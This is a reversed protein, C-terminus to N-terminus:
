NVPCGVIGTNPDPPLCHREKGNNRERGNSFNVPSPAHIQNLRRAESVLWSFKLTRDPALTANRTMLEEFLDKQCGPPIDWSSVFGYTQGDPFGDLHRNMQGKTLGDPNQCAEGALYYLENYPEYVPVPAIAPPSPTLDVPQVPPFQESGVSSSDSGDTSSDTGSGGSNTEAPTQQDATPQQDAPLQTETGTSEPKVGSQEVQATRGGDIHHHTLVAVPILGAIAVTIASVKLWLMKASFNRIKEAKEWLERTKSEALWEADETSRGLARLTGMIREKLENRAAEGTEQFTGQQIESLEKAAADFAEQSGSRIAEVAHDIARTTKDALDRPVKSLYESFASLPKAM